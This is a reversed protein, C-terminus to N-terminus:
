RGKLKLAVYHYGALTMGERTYFHQAAERQVSTDLHIQDCENEAAHQQLWTLMAKGYGKSRAGSVTVLDDVYLFRGWALNEGLRFGAVAIVGTADMGAALHYGERQLRRVQPLFTEANLHPRLEYMATYCANIAADSTALEIQM